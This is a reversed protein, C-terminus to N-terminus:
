VLENENRESLFPACGLSPDYDRERIEAMSLSVMGHENRCSDFTTLVSCLFSLNEDCHTAFDEPHWWLHFVEGHRAAREMAQSIRRRQFSQFPKLAPSYPRLYRSAAISTSTMTSTEPWGFTQSGYIDAYSDLLRAFRKHLRRQEAFSGPLKTSPSETGRYALIGARNLVPLYGPNVENRPFVYSRLMYGAGAAIAIASDVDAEFEDATQGEEMCYYHSFSHCGIEQGPRKAIEAILTPAFHFPDDLENRGLEEQYPDLKSERYKPKRTPMFAQAEERSHAFLFGVTAWTAHVSFEEFLDLMRPIVSRASLLRARERRDLSVRDRVGWHLEFDLSIVLAGPRLSEPDAEWKQRSFGPRELRGPLREGIEGARMIAASVAANKKRGSDPQAKELSSTSTVPNV